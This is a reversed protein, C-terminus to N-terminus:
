VVSGILLIATESLECCAGLLDGTIGGIRRRSMHGFLLSFAWGGGLVVPGLWGLLLYLIIAAPLFNLLWHRWTAGKVFDSATGSKRAYPLRVSLDVMLVRSIVLAAVLWLERGNELLRVLFIWKALLLTILAVVGFTGLLSDKMIELVRERNHGGLFGDACDALGDLHLGRTLAIGALLLLFAAAEPWPAGMGIQLLRAIGYLLGGLLLGVWAFGYLSSSFDHADDGPVPIITLTRVATILGKLMAAIQHVLQIFFGLGSSEAKNQGRSPPRM